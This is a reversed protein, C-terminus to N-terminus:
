YDLIYIPPEPAEWTSYIRTRVIKVPGEKNSGRYPYVGYRDPTALHKLNRELWAEALAKTEFGRCGRNIPFRLGEDQLVEVNWVRRRKAM